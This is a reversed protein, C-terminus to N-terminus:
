SCSRLTDALEGALNKSSFSEIYGYDPRIERKASFCDHLTQASAAPDDPDCLVAMKSKALVEKQDGETVFALIPKQAQWYEFTKGSVCYDLGGNVKASTILLLDCRSQFQLCEKHNLYGLLEVNQSLGFQEIQDLLWPPKHGAFKVEVRDRLDPWRRFLEALAKFFFHPSRYLWDEKRPFYQLWRHPKRKWWPTLMVKRAEPTYYFAGVYGVLIKGSPGPTEIPRPAIRGAFGNTITRFKSKPIEPHAGELDRRVGPTACVVFAARSLCDREARLARRYNLATAFPSSSWQSWNDRFDLVLPIKREALLRCFLPGMSFPPVSVYVVSPKVEDLIKPLAAAVNAGWVEALPDVHSRFNQWWLGLKGKTAVVGTRCPVRTIPLSAPLEALLQPEIKNAVFRKLSEEDTTLVTPNVGHEPLFRAFKMSRHVGSGALPPFEFAVLLVNM